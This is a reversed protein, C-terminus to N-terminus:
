GDHQHDDCFARDGASNWYNRGRRHLRGSKRGQVVATLAQASSRTVVLDDPTNEKGDPGSSSLTFHNSTGEYRYPTRWPDVRIVRKLYRPSLHDVVVSASDASVYFGRDRHFEELAASLTELDARAQKRKEENVRGLLQQPDGWELNGPRIQSVRWSNGSDRVLRVGVEILAVVIASPRSALPLSLLSIQKIRVADSPLKVAVLNALLCRARRPRPEASDAKGSSSETQDCNGTPPEVGAAASILAIQEWVNPGVRIEQVRWQGSDMQEFRYATEIEVLAEAAGVQDESVSKVKVSNSSLEFGAMHAVLKRVQQPKLEARSEYVFAFTILFLVAPIKL